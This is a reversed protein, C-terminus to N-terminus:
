IFESLLVETTITGLRDFSHEFVLRDWNASCTDADVQTLGVEIVTLSLHGIAVLPFCM